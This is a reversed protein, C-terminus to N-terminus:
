KITYAKGAVRANCAKCEFIGPAVRKIKNKGCNPCEQKERLLKETVRVNYRVKRGYRSGFRGATGAKKTHTM